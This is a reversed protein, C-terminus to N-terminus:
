DASVAPRMIALSCSTDSRRSTPQMGTGMDMGAGGEPCISGAAADSIAGKQRRFVNQERNRQTDLKGCNTAASIVQPDRSRQRYKMRHAKSHM